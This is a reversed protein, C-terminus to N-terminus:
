GTLIQKADVLEQYLDRAIEIRSLGEPAVRIDMQAGVLDFKSRKITEEDLGFEVLLDLIEQPKMGFRKAIEELKPKHYGDTSTIGLHYACFLAFADPPGDPLVQKKEVQRPVRGGLVSRDDVHSQSPM